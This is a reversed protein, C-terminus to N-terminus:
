CCHRTKVMSQVLLQNPHDRRQGKDDDLETEDGDPDGDEYM